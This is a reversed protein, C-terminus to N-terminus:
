RYLGNGQTNGKPLTLTTAIYKLLQWKAMRKWLTPTLGKTM